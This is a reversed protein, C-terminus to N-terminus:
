PDKLLFWLPSRYPIKSPVMLNLIEPEPAEPREPKRGTKMVCTISAIITVIM